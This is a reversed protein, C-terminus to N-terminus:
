PSRPGGAIDQEQATEAAMAKQIIQELYWELAELSQGQPPAGTRELVSSLLSPLIRQRAELTLQERRQWYNLLLRYEEPKLGTARLAGPGMESEWRITSRKDSRASYDPTQESVVVTGAALDGLRQAKKTVFMCLGAVGYAPFGDVVRLLNRIVIDVFTIPGGGEKVVRIRVSKKGPSQGNTLLECLVFYGWYVLFMAVILVALGVSGWSEIYTVTAAMSTLAIILIIAFLGFILLNDVIGAILRSGIGALPRELEVNEPTEILDYEQM